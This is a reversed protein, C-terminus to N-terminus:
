CCTAKNRFVHRICIADTTYPLPYYIHKPTYSSAKGQHGQHGGWWFLRHWLCRRREGRGQSSNLSSLVAPPPPSCLCPNWCLLLLFPLFLFDCLLSFFCGPPLGLAASGQLSPTVMAVTATSSQHSADVAAKFLSGRSSRSNSQSQCRHPIKKFTNGKNTKTQLWCYLCYPLFSYVFLCLGKEVAAIKVQWLLTSCPKILFM